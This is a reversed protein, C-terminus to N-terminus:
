NFKFSYLDADKLTFRIKVEKGNLEKLSKEFEVPRSLSDGFLIGSDYGEIANGSTDCIEVRVGGLASTAFNIEMSDGEFTLAKTLVSGGKFDARWSFFGDLRVTYRWLCNPTFM